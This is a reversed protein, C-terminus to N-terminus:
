PAVGLRECVVSVFDPLRELRAPLVNEMHNMLSIDVKCWRNGSILPSLLRNHQGLAMQARKAAAEADPRRVAARLVPHFIAVETYTATFDGEVDHMGMASREHDIAYIRTAKSGDAEPMFLVNGDHRDHNGILADLALLRSIADPPVVASVAGPSAPRASTLARSGLWLEGDFDLFCVEPVYIGLPGSWAWVAFETLARLPSIAGTAEAVALVRKAVFLSDDSTTLWRPKCAPQADQKGRVPGGDRAVSRMVPFLDTPML